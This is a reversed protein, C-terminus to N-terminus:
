SGGPAESELVASPPPALLARGTVGSGAVTSAEMEDLWAPAHTRAWRRPIMGTFMARFQDPRSIAVVVHGAVALALAFFGWDHVFTAGTAWRNPFPPSWRMVVGTLLMAVMGGGILLAEAKQGGNFKGRGSTATRARGPRFWAWDVPTWRDFRRLDGLLHRRWPGAVGLVLPGFLALGSVVHIQELVARHGIALALSPVYLVAGTVLLVLMLVATSWHVAREVGDFRRIEGGPM